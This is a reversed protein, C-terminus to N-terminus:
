EFMDPHDQGHDLDTMEASTCISIVQRETLNHERAIVAHSQGQRRAARIRRNRLALQAFHAKPIQLLEGGYQDCLKLADGGLVDILKHGAPIRPLTPIRLHTGGFEAWLKLMAEEGIHDAMTRLQRPVLHRPLTM